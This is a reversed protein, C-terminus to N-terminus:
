VEITITGCNWLLFRAQPAVAQVRTRIEDFFNWAFVVVLVKSGLDALASVSKIPIQRGPTFLGVKLPNDDIIFDVDVQAFNLITNGKAAAGYGVITYGGQKYKELTGKLSGAFKHAKGAFRTMTRMDRPSDISALTESLDVDESDNSVVFVYSTGHIPTKQVDTVKLGARRALAVFSKISFFSLHEHYVTDFENNEIMNAQSTQIFIRGGPALKSKCIELFQLPYDNHALVNQAIIVDFQTGFQDIANQTLYDCVVNHNASSKPFLNVAPDLGYTTYGRSKFQDLQSGDNCAIDLVRTGTTYKQVLDVFDAFYNRLTQSTGSVYLYNRFLLEPDVTHRLQLHGCDNCHALILPFKEEESGKAQVYSNALPQTGLDLLDFVLESGCAFCTKNTKLM